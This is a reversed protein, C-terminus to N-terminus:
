PLYGLIVWWANLQLRSPLWWRVAISGALNLGLQIAVQLRPVELTFLFPVVQLRAKIREALSILIDVLLEFPHITDLFQHICSDSALLLQVTLNLVEMPLQFYSSFALM